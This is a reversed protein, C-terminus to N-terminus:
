PTITAPWGLLQGSVSELVKGGHAPPQPNQMTVRFLSAVPDTDVLHLYLGTTPETEFTLNAFTVEGSARDLRLQTAGPDMNRFVANDFRTLAEGNAVQLMVNDFVLGDADLGGVQLTRGTSTLTRPTSGVPTRLQGNAFVASGLTVGAASANAIELRQFHSLTTGTGPNAFSVSQADSGDLVTLHSGSAAFAAANGTQVFDGGIRLTGALLRANTSAGGFTADGAITLASAVNQMTLLSGSLMSFNGGVTVEHAGIILHSTSGVTLDGTMSVSGAFPNSSLMRVNNYSYGAGVPVTMPGFFEVTTPAFTGTSSLSTALRALAITVNGANTFPAASGAEFAGGGQITGGAANVVGAFGIRLTRAPAVDVVGSNTFTQSTGSLSLTVDGGTVNM